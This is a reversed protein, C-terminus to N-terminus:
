WPRRSCSPRCPWASSSTPRRRRGGVPRPSALRVPCWSDRRAARRRRLAQLHGSPDGLLHHQGRGHRPRARRSRLAVASRSPSRVARDAAALALPLAAFFPTVMELPAWSWVYANTMWGVGAVTAGVCGAGWRRALWCAGAGALALHIFIFVDHALWPMFLAGPIARGPLADGGRRRHGVARRRQLPDWLPLDGSRWTRRALVSWPFASEAQDSQPWTYALGRPRAAWPVDRDPVVPRGVLHARHADTTAM